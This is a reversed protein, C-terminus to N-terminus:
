VTLHVQTMRLWFPQRVAAKGVLVRTPLQMPMHRVQPTTQAEEEGKHRLGICMCWPIESKQLLLDTIPVDGCLVHQFSSSLPSTEEAKVALPMQAARGVQFRMARTQLTLFSRCDQSLQPKLLEPLGHQKSTSNRTGNEPSQACHSMAAIMRRISHHGLREIGFMSPM